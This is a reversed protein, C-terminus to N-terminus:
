YRLERLLQRQTQRVADRMFDEAMEAGMSQERVRRDNSYKCKEEWEGYTQVGYTGRMSGGRETELLCDGPMNQVPTAYVNGYPNASITSAPPPPAGCAALGLLSAGGALNRISAANAVSELVDGLKM